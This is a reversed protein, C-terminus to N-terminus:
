FKQACVVFELAKVRSNRVRWCKSNGALKPLFNTCSELSQGHPRGAVRERKGNRFAYNLYTEVTATDM